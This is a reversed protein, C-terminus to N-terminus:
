KACADGAVKGGGDAPMGGIAKGRLAAIVFTTRRNEAKGAPTSNDAIPKTAGFGTALLRKCDVGRAVLAKAIALARQETLAQDGDADSHVEIRLTSVYSKEELFKQVEALVAASEPKVVAKGTEFLVPGTVKIESQGLTLVLLLAAIM